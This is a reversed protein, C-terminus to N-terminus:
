MQAVWPQLNGGEFLEKLSVSNTGEGSESISMLRLTVRRFRGAGSHRAVDDVPTASGTLIFQGKVQRNDVEHRVTNWITPVLPWEDILRPTAGDLVAQPSASALDLFDPDADLRISSAAFHLGLTTKGSARPGQLVVAGFTQLAREILSDVLRSRYATM